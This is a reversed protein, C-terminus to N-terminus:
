LINTTMRNNIVHLKSHQLVVWVVRFMDCLVLEQLKVTNQNAKHNLFLFM